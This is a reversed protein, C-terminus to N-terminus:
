FFETSSNSLQRSWALLCSPLENSIVSDSFCILFSIFFVLSLRLSKAYMRLPVLLIYWPNESPYSLSVSLPLSNRQLFLLWFNGLDSFISIWSIWLVGVLTFGFLVVDLCMVILSDLLLSLLDQFCNASLLIDCVFAAEM